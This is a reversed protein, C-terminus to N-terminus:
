WEISTVQERILEVEADSYELTHDPTPGGCGAVLLFALIPLKLWCLPAIRLGRM